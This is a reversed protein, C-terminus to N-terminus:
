MHFLHISNYQTVAGKNINLLVLERQLLGVRVCIEHYEM